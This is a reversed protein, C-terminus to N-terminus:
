HIIFFFMDDTSLPILNSIEAIKNKKNKVLTIVPVRPITNNIMAQTNVKVLKILKQGNYEM